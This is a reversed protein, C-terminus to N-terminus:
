SLRHRSSYLYQSNLVVMAVNDWTYYYVNEKYTPFDDARNPNPDLFSGDESLPGNEPNM